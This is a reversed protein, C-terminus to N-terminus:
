KFLKLAMFLRIDISCKSTFCHAENKEEKGEWYHSSFTAASASELLAPPSTPAALTVYEDDCCDDEEDDSYTRNSGSKSKEM